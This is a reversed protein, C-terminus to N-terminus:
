RVDVKYFFDNFKRQIEWSAKELRTNRTAHSPHEGPGFGSLRANYEVVVCCFPLQFPALLLRAIPWLITRLRHKRVVMSSAISVCIHCFLPSCIVDATYSIRAALFCFHPECSPWLTLKYTRRTFTSPVSLAPAVYLRIMRLSSSTATILILAPSSASRERHIWWKWLGYLSLKLILDPFFFLVTLNSSRRLISRKLM